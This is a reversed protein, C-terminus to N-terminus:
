ASIFGSQDLNILRSIIKSLRNALVRALLKVDTNLLSILRYLDPILKDKGPKPLVALIAEHMSNPLKGTNAAEFLSLLLTPLLTNGYKLYM